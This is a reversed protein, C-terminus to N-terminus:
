SAHPWKRVQPEDIAAIAYSLLRGVEGIPQGDPTLPLDKDVLGERHIYALAEYAAKLAIIIEDNM